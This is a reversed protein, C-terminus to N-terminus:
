SYQTERVFSLIFEAMSSRAALWFWHGMSVCWNSYSLALCNNLLVPLSNLPVASALSYKATLPLDFEINLFWWLRLCVLKDDEHVKKRIIISVFTHSVFLLRFPNNRHLPYTHEIIPVWHLAQLLRLLEKTHMPGAQMLLDSQMFPTLFSSTSIPFSFCFSNASLAIVITNSFLWYHFEVKKLWCINLWEVFTQTGLTDM